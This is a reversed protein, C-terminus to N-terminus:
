KVNGMQVRWYRSLIDGGEWISLATGVLCTATLSTEKFVFSAIWCVLTGIYVNSIDGLMGGMYMFIIFCMGAVWFAANWARIRWMSAHTGFYFGRKRDLWSPEQLHYPLLHNPVSAVTIKEEVIDYADLDKEPLKKELLMNGQVCCDIIYKESSM